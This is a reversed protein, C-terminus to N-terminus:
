TGLLIILVGVLAAFLAWGIYHQGELFVRLRLIAKGVRNLSVELWYLLWRLRLIEALLPPSIKLRKIIQTRFYGLGAAGIITIGITVFVGTPQEFGAAPLETRTIIALIFPALGPVLFPTMMVIGAVSRRTDREVGPWLRRWYRLLGSLALGEALVVVLILAM